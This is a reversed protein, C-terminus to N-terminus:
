GADGPVGPCPTGGRIWDRETHHVFGGIATARDQFKSSTHAAIAAVKTRDVGGICLVVRHGDVRCGPVAQAIKVPRQSGPLDIAALEHGAGADEAHATACNGGDHGVGASRRLVLIAIMRM